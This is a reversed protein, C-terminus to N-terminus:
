GRVALAEERSRFVRSRRLLGDEFENLWFVTSHALGGRKLAYRANGCVLVTSDDLEEVETVSGTYLSAARGQTLARVVADKGAVPRNFTILLSVEIDPHLLSPWDGGHEHFARASEAINM